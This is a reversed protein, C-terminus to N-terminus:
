DAFALPRSKHTRARSQMRARVKRSPNRGRRSNRAAPWQRLAADAISKLEKRTAGGAAQVAMGYIVASLYSALGAPDADPPLDGDAKARKLRRRIADQGALRRSILERRIPDAEDGCALAGQVGLCGAPSRRDGHLDTAGQLLAQAVARATPAKLAIARYSGARAEYRDLVTRFLAEKNGFAAYLSPRTIGLTSTLDSLSTGEYGKRWFLEMALDLAKEADFERPRGITM